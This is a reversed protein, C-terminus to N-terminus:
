FSDRMFKSKKMAKATFHTQVARMIGLLVIERELFNLPRLEEMINKNAVELKESDIIIEAM